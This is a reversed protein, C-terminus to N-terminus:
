LFYSYLELWWFYDDLFVYICVFSVEESMVEELYRKRENEKEKNVVLFIGFEGDKFEKSVM